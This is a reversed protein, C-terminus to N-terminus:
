DLNPPVSRIKCKFNEITKSTVINDDLHNWEGTTRVFFSYRYQDTSSNPIVFPRSNNYVSKTVINNSVCNEFRKARIQRRNNTKPTFFQDSPMAPVLGEVVKFMFILRLQRRREELSPLELRHLMSTVCGPDKSKYDQTIFRAARHQLRELRAIDTKYHSDWVTAGYELTSRILSIYATKRCDQSCKRLNRQLFGLTTAAKKSINCIHTHWKLDNSIQLGLYPNDAVQQLICNDLKYFLYKMKDRIRLIYCKKANFRMGWQSAWTELKSLDNQLILHDEFTDITRYLLCDDAFLRVQSKVCLPLDNIHCLFLIPGLVTGQPVGSEVLVDESAQGDLVVRMTRNTLFNRLWSHVSGHVGYKNLKYLLKRHPVTDFAKSFDLIAVDVQKGQDYSLLLDNLTTLLQTECSFGARFGHNLNTLIKHTEFHHMLHHCVIHELLKCCVSTLSVPRYNSALHKDGKKFVCSVNAKKWDKPLNGSSISLQFIEALPPAIHEACNKLVLNPIGDPGCAKAPNISKLLKEVGASSITINDIPPYQENNMTPLPSNDEPTFVSQFQKLLIAAKSKTDSVLNSKDRLPAVGINDQRRSKVYQWFPKTNNSQMGEEIINNVYSYEARRIARKCERQHQRYNDWMQTKRAQQFLRHKKKLMRKINKTIWPTRPRGGCMKSPIHNDIEKLLTNKFTNWVDDIHKDNTVM